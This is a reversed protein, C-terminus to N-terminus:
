SDLLSNEAFIEQFLLPDLFDSADGLTGDMNALLIEHVPPQQERLFVCSRLCFNALDRGGWTLVAASIMCDQSCLGDLNCLWRRFLRCIDERAPANGNQAIHALLALTNSPSRLHNLYVYMHLCREMESCARYMQVFVKVSKTVRNVAAIVGQQQLLDRSRVKDYIMVLMKLTDLDIPLIDHLLRSEVKCLLNSCFFVLIRLTEMTVHTVRQVPPIPPVVVNNATATCSQYNYVDCVMQMNYCLHHHDGHDQWWQVVDQKTYPLAGRIGGLFECLAAATASADYAAQIMEGCFIVRADTNVRRVIHYWHATKWTETQINWKGNWDVQMFYPINQVIICAATRVLENQHAFQQCTFATHGAAADAVADVAITDVWRREVFDRIEDFDRVLICICILRLLCDSGTQLHTQQRWAECEASVVPDDFHRSPQKRGHVNQNECAELAYKEFCRLLLSGEIESLAHSQSSMTIQRFLTSDAGLIWTLIDLRPGHM